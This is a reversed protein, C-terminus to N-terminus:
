VPLQRTAPTSSKAASGIAIASPLQIDLGCFYKLLQCDGTVDYGQVAPMTLQPEAASHSAAKTFLWPLQGRHCRRQSQQKGDVTGGLAAMIRPVAPASASCYLGGSAINSRGPRHHKSNGPHRYGNAGAAYGKEDNNRRHGKDGIKTVTGDTGTSPLQPYKAATTVSIPIPRRRLVAANGLVTPVSKASM